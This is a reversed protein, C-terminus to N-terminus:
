QPESRGSSHPSIWLMSSTLSSSSSSPSSSCADRCLGSGPISFPLDGYKCGPAEDDLAVMNMVREWIQSLDCLGSGDLGGDDGSEGLVDKKLFGLAQALVTM